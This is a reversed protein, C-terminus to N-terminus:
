PPYEDRIPEMIALSQAGALLPFELPKNEQFFNPHILKCDYSKSLIPNRYKPRPTSYLNRNKKLRFKPKAIVHGKTPTILCPFGKLSSELSRLLLVGKTNLPGYRNTSDLQTPDPIFKAQTKTENDEKEVDRYHAALDM